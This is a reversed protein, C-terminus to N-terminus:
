RFIEFYGYIDIIYMIHEMCLIYIIGEQGCNVVCEVMELRQIGMTRVFLNIIKSIEEILIVMKKVAELM